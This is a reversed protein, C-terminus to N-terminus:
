CCSTIRAESVRSPRRAAPGFAMAAGDRDHGIHAVEISIAMTLRIEEPRQSVLFEGKSRQREIIQVPHGVQHIGVVIQREAPCVRRHNNDSLAELDRLNRRQMAPIEMDDARRVDLRKRQEGLTQAHM